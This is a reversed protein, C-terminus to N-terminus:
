IFIDFRIKCNDKMKYNDKILSNENMFVLACCRQAIKASDNILLDYRCKLNSNLRINEILKLNESINLENLDLERISIFNRQSYENENELVDM